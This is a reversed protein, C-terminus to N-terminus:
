AAICFRLNLTTRSLRSTPRASKPPKTRTSSFGNYDGLGKRAMGRSAFAGADTPDLAIARSLDDKAESWEHLQLRAEGRGHFAAELLRRNNPSARVARDFHAFAGKYDNRDLAADGAKVDGLPTQACASLPAVLCLIALALPRINM